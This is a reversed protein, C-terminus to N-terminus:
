VLAFFCVLGRLLALGNGDCSPECFLRILAPSNEKSPMAEPMSLQPLLNCEDGVVGGNGIGHGNGPRMVEIQDDCGHSLGTTPCMPLSQAPAFVVTIFLVVELWGVMLSVIGHM